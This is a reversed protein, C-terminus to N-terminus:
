HQVALRFPGAPLGAGDYLNCVPSDAWCFRVIDSPQAQPIELRAETDGANARVYRCTSATRDCLEFGVVTDGSLVKLGGSVDKFTVVVASGERRASVAWPGSPPAPDGYVVHRAAKAARKALELKNAPHIDWRDGLDIAVALGAHADAAVALRQRERLEAWGSPGPSTPPMGYNALQVVLFPTEDGFRGRWDAMLGALLRDYTEPARETDSEGQYWLVGKFAADHLPQIMANAITSLGALSEWPARPPPGKVDDAVRYSWGSADLPIARGDAFAIKRKEPPGYIGGAMYTDLVNVVIDNRGAKLLGAPIAYDRDGSGSAGIPKGNVWTQDSEDVNGLMLRAPQRSQAATLTASVRYWMLGNYASLSPVGWTEWATMAPVATWQGEGTWPRDKHHSLWWTEWMRGWSAQAAPPDTVSQALVALGDDYGGQAKLADASMWTQITSGGWSANILGMPVDVTKRLDQAFFFCLASFDPVTEPGAVKWTVPHRFEELPTASSDLGITTFRIRDDASAAIERPANLARRVELVMNSQGSCLWVDGILIDVVTRSEDGSQVVLTHPGGAPLAPLEVRWKGDAGATTQATQGALTVSVREAARAHGWVPIPKDRQLVAHDQFLSALLSPQPSQAAASLTMVLALGVVALVARM